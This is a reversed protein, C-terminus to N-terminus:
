ETVARRYCEITQRVTKDWGFQAARRLSRTALRKRFDEDQCLRRMAEALGDIDDPDVLLGADGVVEPLSAATSAIVPAGCAMAEIVPLGFGEYRSPYAFALAGSYLAPLDTDSVYGTFLIRRRVTASRRATALIEEYQWGLPGALVLHLDGAKEQETLALFARITATVNKRPELTGLGLLYPVDAPIGYRRRVARLRSGDQCPTFRPAAALHVVQVREPALDPRYELLDRRTSESICIVWDGPSLGALTTALADTNKGSFYEPFRIPILDHVTLVFRCRGGAKRAHGPFPHFPSHYIDAGAMQVSSLLGDPWWRQVLTTALRNLATLGDQWRPPLAGDTGRRRGQELITTFLTDLLRLAPPLGPPSALGTGHRRLWERTQLRHLLTAPACFGVDVGPAAALGRALNEVVQYVGTRAQPSVLGFGLVSIDFLVRIM